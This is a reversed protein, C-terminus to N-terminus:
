INKHKFLWPVIELEDWDRHKRCKMVTQRFVRVHPQLDLGHASEAYLPIGIIENNGVFSTVILWTTEEGLRVQVYDCVRLYRIEKRLM